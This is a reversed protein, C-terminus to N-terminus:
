RNSGRRVEDHEAGTLEANRRHHVLTECQIQDARQDNGRGAEHQDRSTRVAGTQLAGAESEWAPMELTRAESSLAELEARRQGADLEALDGVRAYFESWSAGSETFLQEMAPVWQRYAALAAFRANDLPVAFFGTYRDDFLESHAEYCRAVEALLAAKFTRGVFASYNRQYLARLQAQWSLMYRAFRDEVLWRRRADDLLATESTESLWDVVGQRQVFTAFAENFDTDGPLYIRSHALEHFLLGAFDPLPWDIFSSMLPDDFWGLTSYAAVGAVRVDYGESALRRAYRHAQSEEFYGRYGSCGAFPYCWTKADVSFEPAAVVNWLAYRRPLEVYSSYRTDVDLLLVREAFELIERSRVLRAKLDPATDQDAILAAVPERAGLVAVQGRGVQGYFHLSDCGVCGLLLAIWLM